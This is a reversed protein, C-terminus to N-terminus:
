LRLYSIYYLSCSKRCKKPFVLYSAARVWSDMCVLIKSMKTLAMKPAGHWETCRCKVYHCYTSVLLIQCESTVVFKLQVSLNRENVLHLLVFNQWFQFHLASSRKSFVTFKQKLNQAFNSWSKYRIWRMLSQQCFYVQIQCFKWTMKAVNLM